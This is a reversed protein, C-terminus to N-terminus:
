NLGSSPMRLRRWILAPCLGLLHALRGELLMGMLVAVGHSHRYGAAKEIAHGFTHGHNLIRRLGRDGKMRPWSKGKIEVCRRIVPAVVEPDLEYFPM